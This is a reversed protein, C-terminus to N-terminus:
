FVEDSEQSFAILRIDDGLLAYLTVLTMIIQIIAHNVFKDTAKQLLSIQFFNYSVKCNNIDKDKEIKEITAKDQITGENSHYYQHPEEEQM